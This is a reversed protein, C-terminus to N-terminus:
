PSIYVNTVHFDYIEESVCMQMNGPSLVIEIDSLKATQEKKMKWMSELANTGYYWACVVLISMNGTVSLM